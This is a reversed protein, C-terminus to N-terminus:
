MPTVLRQGESVELRGHGSGDGFDQGECRPRQLATILSVNSHKATLLLPLQLSRLLLLPRLLVAAAAAAATACCCCRGSHCCCCCCCCCCCRGAEVHPWVKGPQLVEQLDNRETEAMFAMAAGMIGLRAEAAIGLVDLQLLAIAPLPRRGQVPAAAHLLLRSSKREGEGQRKPCGAPLTCCPWARSDLAAGHCIRMCQEHVHTLTCTTLARCYSTLCIGSM